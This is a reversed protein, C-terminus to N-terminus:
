NYASSQSNKTEGALLNENADGFEVRDKGEYMNAFEVSVAADAMALAFRKAEQIKGRKAGEVGAQLGRIYKEVEKLFKDRDFKRIQVNDGVADRLLPFSRFDDLRSIGVTGGYASRPALLYDCLESFAEAKQRKGLELQALEVYAKSSLEAPSVESYAM